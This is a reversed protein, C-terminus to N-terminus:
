KTFLSCMDPKLFFRVLCVEFYSQWFRLSFPWTVDCELAMCWSNISGQDRYAILYSLWVCPIALFCVPIYWLQNGINRLIDMTQGGDLVVHYQEMAPLPAFLLSNRVELWDLWTNLLESGVKDAKSPKVTKDM